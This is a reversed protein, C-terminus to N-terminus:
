LVAGFAAANEKMSPVDLIQGIFRHARLFIHSRAPHSQRGAVQEILEVNRAARQRCLKINAGAIHKEPEGEINGRHCQQHVHQGLLAPQRDPLHHNGQTVRMEVAIVTLLHAGTPAPALAM